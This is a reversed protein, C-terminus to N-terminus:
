GEEHGIKKGLCLKTIKLTQSSNETVKYEEEFINARLKREYNNLILKKIIRQKQTADNFLKDFCM